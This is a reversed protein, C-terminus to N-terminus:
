RKKASFFIHEARAFTEEERCYRYEWELAKDMNKALERENYPYFVVVAAMDNLLLGTSEVAKGLEGPFYPRTFFSKSSFKKDGIPILKEELLRESMSYEANSLFDQLFAWANDVTALLEGGSKLVRTVEQLVELPRSSYSLVDGMALVFDYSQDDCPLAEGNARIFDVSVEAIDAKMKAVKLMECSPDVATVRHGDEALCIAWRGTGTGLDLIDCGTKDSSIHDGVLRSVIKHYLQWYPDEYMYDYRAAIDNYYEWSERLVACEKLFFYITAIAKV